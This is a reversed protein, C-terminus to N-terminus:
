LQEEYKEQVALMDAWVARKQAPTHLLYTSHYTVITPVPRQDASALAQTQPHYDHWNKRLKSLSETRGLLAKAAVGGCLILLKPNILQIHREIFPLSVAIEAPSPTRNGPPRWNIINSIYVSKLPDDAGRELDICKLIKDLLEGSAGVFPKGQRDEDAGPAEGILMISANPNGDAFVMNTATKKLPLGDFEAIAERLEELTKATKALMTSQEQAESKGLPLTPPDVPRQTPAPRKQNPAETSSTANKMPAIPAPVKFRDVPADLLTEDVGHDLYYRLTEKLATNHAHSMCGVKVHNM